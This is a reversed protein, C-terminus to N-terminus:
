SINRRKDERGRKGDEKLRHKEGRQSAEKGGRREGGKMWVWVWVWVWVWGLGSWGGQDVALLYPAWAQLVKAERFSDDIAHHPKRQGDHRHTSHLRQRRRSQRRKGTERSAELRGRATTRRWPLAGHCGCM